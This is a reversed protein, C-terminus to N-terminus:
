LWRLSVVTFSPYRRHFIRDEHHGLTQSYPFPFPVEVIKRLEAISVMGQLSCPDRAESGGVRVASPMSIILRPAM